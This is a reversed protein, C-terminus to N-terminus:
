PVSLPLETATWPTAFLRIHSLLEVASAAAAFAQPAGAWPRGPLAGVQKWMHMIRIVNKEPLFNNIHNSTVWSNWDKSCDNM